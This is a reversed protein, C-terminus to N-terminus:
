RVVAVVSVGRSLRNSLTQDHCGKVMLPTCTLRVTSGEHSSLRSISTGVMWSMKDLEEIKLKEREVFIPVDLLSPLSGQDSILYKETPVSAIDCFM